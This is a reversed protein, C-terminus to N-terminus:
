VITTCYYNYLLSLFLLLLLLLLLQLLLLLRLRLLIVEKVYDYWQNRYGHSVTVHLSHIKPSSQAQAHTHM